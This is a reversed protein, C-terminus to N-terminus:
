ALAQDFDALIDALDEIGVSVRVLNPHIGLRARQKPPIDRHSAIDPYLAMTHVDGLSTAPVVMKLRDFFQFIDQKEAGAIEFSLMAGFKGAPFLRATTARDPHDPLGPFYVKAVKPHRSLHQAVGIANQNQREIRLPYTKIGRMSLFCEFPGLIPGYIRSLGRVAEHHAADSCVFGGVVDGHGSLYKTASHVSIHAGLELPRLLAPSAFTNDVILCAGVARAMEAIKDIQGIRLLPNSISEMLIVGPKEAAIAAAVADLDCIDVLTNTTGFPEFVQQLLKVTAGYIANAALVHKKRDVLAATLAIQLASMGSATALTGHAGELATVLEELAANTPNDYRSYAYGHMEHAFVKDISEMSDYFFSASAYIPTAVPTAQGPVRKRDGTHVAKSNLNM